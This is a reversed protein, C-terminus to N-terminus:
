LTELSDGIVGEDEATEDVESKAASILSCVIQDPSDLVEYRSDNFVDLDIIRITDGLDLKSVDVDVTEMLDKPLLQISIESVQESLLKNRDEVDEKHVFRIPLTVKLKEGMTLEQFDVHICKRLITDFQMDKLIVNHEEGDAILVLNSGKGHYSIFHELEGQSIKINKTEKNHGYLVGPVVGNRRLKSVANSRVEDRHTFSIKEVKM